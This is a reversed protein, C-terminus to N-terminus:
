HSFSAALFYGNGCGDRGMAISRRGFGPRRKHLRQARAKPRGTAGRFQPALRTVVLCAATAQRCPEAPHGCAAVENRTDAVEAPM